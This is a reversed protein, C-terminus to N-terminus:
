SAELRIIWTKSQALFMTEKRGKRNLTSGQLQQEPYEPHIAINIKEELVQNEVTSQISPGFIMACEMPIFRSSQLMVTGCHEAMRVEIIMPVGDRRKGCPSLVNDDGSLLKPYDQAQGIMPPPAKFKGKELAFIEKPM